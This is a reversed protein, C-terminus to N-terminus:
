DASPFARAVDRLVAYVVPGRDASALLRDAYHLLRDVDQYEGYTFGDAPHFGFMVTRPAALPQGGFNADLIKSMEASGAYDVMIGNDPVELLPLTPPTAALPDGPSPHYPQSTDGISSWHAMNWRYLEGTGKGIWEDLRKWNLASTDAVYGEDALAQLTEASATWGGARFTVPRGLGHQDFLAAAHALLARFGARGYAAVKITYGSTDTPYVTSQDTICPLGAATVFHCYPHIHLGIEGHQEDRERKIWAVLAEVRAPALAPDTFTYPGIFNTIRAEPHDRHLQDQLRLANDGPDSFDWDTSMLVYLPASRRITAVGFATDSSDAALLIQHTGTPLDALSVQVAFQGNQAQMRVAPLTGIWADVYRTGPPADVFMKLVDHGPTVGDGALYWQRLGTIKVAPDISSPAEPRSRAPGPVLDDGCGAAGGAALAWLLALGAGARASRPLLAPAAFPRM